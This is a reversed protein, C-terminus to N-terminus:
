NGALPNYPRSTLDPDIGYWRSREVQSPWSRRDLLGSLETYVRFVVGRERPAVSLPLGVDMRIVDPSGAPLGLRLGAGIGSRWGSDQGFPVTGAWGRGLDAFLALGVGAAASRVINLPIRHEVTALLRRAAPYADDTYGRIAERGGLTLQFPRDVAHGAVYSIRAFVGTGPEPLWYAHADVEHIVDRWAGPADVAGAEDYAPEWRGQLDGRFRVYVSGNSHGWAGQARLYVDSDTGRGSSVAPAATVTLSAGTMVDQPAELADLGALGVLTVDRVGITFTLRRAAHDQAQRSVEARALGTSAVPADFDDDAVLAVGDDGFPFVLEEKSFGLGTVFRAGDDDGWRRQVSLEFREEEFRLLAQSYGSSPDMSFSFYDDRRRAVQRFASRGMEGAYPRLLSESVFAGSRTKGIQITADVRSGFLNPQRTIVGTRLRERFATRFLGLRTGTGLVNRHDLSIGTLDIGGDLSIAAGGTLAWSDRARVHVRHRGAGLSEPIIEVASVYRLSRLSRESEEILSPDLCDGERFLLEWRVVPERTRVHLHNLMGFAWDAPTGDVAFPKSVEYEIASIVGDPCVEQAALRPTMTVVLIVAPGLRGILRTRSMRVGRLPLASPSFLRPAASRQGGSMLHRAM